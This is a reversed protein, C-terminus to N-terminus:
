VFAGAPAPRQDDDDEDDAAEATEIAEDMPVLQAQAERIAAGARAGAAVLRDLTAMLTEADTHEVSALHTLMVRSAETDLAFSYSGALKGVMNQRLLAAFLTGSAPLDVYAVSIAYLLARGDDRRALLIETDDDHSLVCRGQDDFDLVLGFRSKTEAALDEIAM